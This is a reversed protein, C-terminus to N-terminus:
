EPFWGPLPLRALTAGCLPPDWTDGERSAGGVRGHGAAEGLTRAALSSLTKWGQSGAWSAGRSLLPQFLDLSFCHHALPGSGCAPTRLPPPKNLRRSPMAPTLHHHPHQVSSDRDSANPYHSEPALLRCSGVPTPSTTTGSGPSQAHQNVLCEDLLEDICGALPSAAGSDHRPPM